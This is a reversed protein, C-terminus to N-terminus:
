HKLELELEKLAKMESESFEENSDGDFIYQVLMLGKYYEVHSMYKRLLEKYDVEEM